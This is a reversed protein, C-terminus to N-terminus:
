DNPNISGLDVNPRFEDPMCRGTSTEFVARVARGGEFIHGAYYADGAETAKRKKGSNKREIAEFLPSEKPDDGPDIVCQHARAPKNAESGEFDKKLGIYRQNLNNFDQDLRNLWGTHVRLAMWQVIANCVLVSVVTLLIFEMM